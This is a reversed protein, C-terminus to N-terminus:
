NLYLVVTSSLYVSLCAPPSDSICWVIDAVFGIFNNTYFVILIIYM